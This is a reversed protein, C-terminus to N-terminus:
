QWRGDQKLIPSGADLSAPVDLIRQNQSGRFRLMLSRTALEFRGDVLVHCKSLLELMDGGSQIIEEFTFGSYSALELGRARVADAFPLLASAQCFPEGGSLTVGSLLPNKDLLQILADVTYPTGGEFPHTHPNHCGECGHPCGQVFVALRIGPGDTISDGVIGSVMITQDSM